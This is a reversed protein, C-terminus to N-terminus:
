TFFMMSISTVSSLFHVRVPVFGLSYIVNPMDRDFVYHAQPSEYIYFADTLQQILQEKKVEVRKEISFTSLIEDLDLSFFFSSSFTRRDINKKGIAIRCQEINFDFQNIEDHKSM